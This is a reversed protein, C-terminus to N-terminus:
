FIDIVTTLPGFLGFSYFVVVSSKRTRKRPLERTLAHLSRTLSFSKTKKHRKNTKKRRRKQISKSANLIDLGTQKHVVRRKRGTHRRVFKNRANGGRSDKRKRRKNRGKWRKVLIFSPATTSRRKNWVYKKKETRKGNRNKGATIVCFETTWNRALDSTWEWWGDSRVGFVVFLYMIFYFFGAAVVDRLAHLIDM